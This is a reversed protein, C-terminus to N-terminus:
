HTWRTVKPRTAGRLTTPYRARAARAAADEEAWLMGFTFGNEGAAHAAAGLQRHLTRATVADQHEGLLDQLDEMKSALRSAKKGAVPVASEAAYRARKAAKRVDHLAAERGVDRV